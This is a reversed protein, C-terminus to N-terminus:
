KGEMCAEWANAKMFTPGWNKGVNEDYAENATGMCRDIKAQDASAYQKMWYAPKENQVYDGHGACASLSLAALIAFAKM